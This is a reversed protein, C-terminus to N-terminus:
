TNLKDFTSDRLYKPNHLDLDDPLTLHCSGISSTLDMDRRVLPMPDELWVTHIGRQMLKQVALLKRCVLQKFGKDGWSVVGAATDPLIEETYVPLGKSRSSLAPDPLASRDRCGSLCGTRTYDKLVADDMALFVHNSIGPVPSPLPMSPHQSSPSSAPTSSRPHQPCPRSAACPIETHTTGFTYLPDVAEAPCAFVSPMPLPSEDDIEIHQVPHREAQPHTAPDHRMPRHQAAAPPRPLPPKRGRSMSQAGPCDSSAYRLLSASEVLCLPPVPSRGTRALEQWKVSQWGCYAVWGFLYVSALAMDCLTWRRDLLWTGKRWYLLTLVVAAVLLLGVLCIYVTLDELIMDVLAM